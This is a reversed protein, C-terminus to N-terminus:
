CQKKLTDFKELGRAAIDGPNNYLNLYYHWDPESDDYWALVFRIVTSQKADLNVKVAVKNTKGSISNDLVGTTNFDSNNGVSVIAGNQESNGYIAWKKATLVKETLLPSTHRKYHAPIRM